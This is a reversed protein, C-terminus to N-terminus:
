RKGADIGKGTAAWWMGRDLHDLYVHDFVRGLDYAHCSLLRKVTRHRDRICM